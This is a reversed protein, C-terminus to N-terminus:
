ENYSYTMKIFTFKNILYHIKLINRLKVLFSQLFAGFFYSGFMRKRQNKRRDAARLTDSM